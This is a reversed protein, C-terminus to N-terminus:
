RCSRPKILRQCMNTSPCDLRSDALGLVVGRLSLAWISHRGDLPHIALSNVPDSFVAEARVTSDLCAIGLHLTFTLRADPQSPTPTHVPLMEM